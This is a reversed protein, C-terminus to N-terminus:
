KVKGSGEAKPDTLLKTDVAECSSSVDVGTFLDVGTIKAEGVLEVLKEKLNEGPTISVLFSATLAKGVYGVNAPILGLDWIMTKAQNDYNIKGASAKSGGSFNVGPSLKALVRGEKVDNTLNTVRWYIRYTSTKGVEPIAPGSGVQKGEDDYYRAFQEITPETQIKAISSIGKVTRDQSVSVPIDESLIYPTLSMKFNKDSNKKVTITAPIEVMFSVEGSAGPNLSAFEPVGSSDWTVVGDSYSGNLVELTSVDVARRDIYARLSTSHLVVSSDNRYTIKCNLLTGPTVVLDSEDNIYAQVSIQVDAIKTSDEDTAMVKFGDKESYSGIEVKVTKYDGKAGELKGNITISGASGSELKGMNWISIDESPNPSSESFSFGSPYSLRVQLDDITNRSHNEYTIMYQVSNGSAVSQPANIEVISGSPNILTDASAEKTFSASIGVPVYSFEASVIKVSDPEGFLRGKVVIQGGEKSKVSGIKWYNSTESKSEVSSSIFEFGDPYRVTLQSDRLDVGENNLYSFTYEVTDGSAISQTAKTQLEVLHGTFSGTKGKLIAYIVWVLILSIVLIGGIWIFKKYKKYFHKLKFFKDKHIIEEGHLVDHLAEEPTEVRGDKTPTKISVFDKSNNIKQKPNIDM